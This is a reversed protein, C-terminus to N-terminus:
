VLSETENKIKKAFCCSLMDSTVGGKKTMAQGTSIAKKFNAPNAPKIEAKTESTESKTM